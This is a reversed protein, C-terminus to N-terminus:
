VCLSAGLVHVYREKERKETEERVCIVRVSERQRVCVDNVNQRECVFGARGM